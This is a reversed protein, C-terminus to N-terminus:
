VLARIVKATKLNGANLRQADNILGVAKNAAEYDGTQMAHLADAVLDTMRQCTDHMTSLASSISAVERAETNNM